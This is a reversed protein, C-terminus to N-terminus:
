PIRLLVTASLLEHLLLLALGLVVLPFYNEEYEIYEYRKDSREELRDIDQYIKQLAETTKANFYAGGTTSAIEKLTKEDYDMLHNVVATGGFITPVRLPAYGPGGIGVTYIKVGLEKALRAAELPSINGANSKGDTVVVIVKSKGEIDKIRKLAVAIADGVATARGSMGVELENVFSQLLRHDTTLPCQTFAADGFVVLGMRDGARKAIFDTVVHKLADVREVTKGNLKFDLAAMSGSLDLALMIDRGTDEVEVFSSSYQPRALAVVLLGFVLVKLAPLITRSLLVRQSTHLEALSFPAVFTVGTTPRKSKALLPWIFILLLFAEPNHFQM